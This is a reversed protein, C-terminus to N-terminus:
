DLGVPDASPRFQGQAAQHGARGPERLPVPQDRHRHATQVNDKPPKQRVTVQQGIAPLVQPHEASIAISSRLRRSPAWPSNASPGALGPASRSNGTRNTDCNAGCGRDANLAASSSPYRNQSVVM